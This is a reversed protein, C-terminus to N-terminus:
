VGEELKGSTRSEPLIVYHQLPRILDIVQSHVERLIEDRPMLYPALSAAEFHGNQHILPLHLGLLPILGHEVPLYLTRHSLDFSVEIAGEEKANSPRRTCLKMAPEGEKVKAVQLM